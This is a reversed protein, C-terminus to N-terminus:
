LQRAMRSVVGAAPRASSKRRAAATRLPCVRTSSSSSARRSCVSRRARTGSGGARLSAHQGAGGQGRGKALHEQGRVGVAQGVEAQGALREVRRVMHADGQGVVRQEGLRGALHLGVQGAPQVGEVQREGEGARGEPQADPGFQLGDGVAPREAVAFQGCPEAAAGLGPGHAARGVGVRHGDDHGAM